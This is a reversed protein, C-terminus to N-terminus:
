PEDPLPDPFLTALRPLGLRSVIARIPVGSLISASPLILLGLNM